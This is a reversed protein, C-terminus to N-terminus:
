VLVKEVQKGHKNKEKLEILKEEKRQMFKLRIKEIIKQKDEYSQKFEEMKKENNSLASEIRLKSEESKYRLNMLNRQRREEMLRKREKDKADLINQKAMIENHQKEFMADVQKRFNEENKKKDALKLKFDIDDIEKKKMEMIRLTEKLEMEAQYKREREDEEAKLVRQREEEKIKYLRAKEQLLLKKEHLMREEKEKREQMKKENQKRVDELYFEYDIM